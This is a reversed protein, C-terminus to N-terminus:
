TKTLYPKNTKPTFDRTIPNMRSKNKSLVNKGIKIGYKFGALWSFITGINITRDTM